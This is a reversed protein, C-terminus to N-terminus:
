LHRVEAEAETAEFLDQYRRDAIAGRAQLLTKPYRDRLQLSSVSPLLPTHVFSM